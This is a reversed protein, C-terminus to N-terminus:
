RRSVTIEVVDSHIPDPFHVGDVEYGWRELEELVSYLYSLTPAEAVIKWGNPTKYGKM